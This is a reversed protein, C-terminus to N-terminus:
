AERNKACIQKYVGFPRRHSAPSNRGPRRGRRVRTNRGVPVQAAQQQPAELIGTARGAAKLHGTWERWGDPTRDGGAHSSKWDKQYWSPSSGPWTDQNRRPVGFLLGTCMHFLSPTKHLHSKIVLIDRSLRCSYSPLVGLSVRLRCSVLGGVESRRGTKKLLGVTLEWNNVAWFFASGKRGYARGSQNGTLSSGLTWWRRIRRGDHAYRLRRPQGSLALARGTPSRWFKDCVGWTTKMVDRAKPGFTSTGTGTPAKRAAMGGCTGETLLIGLTM